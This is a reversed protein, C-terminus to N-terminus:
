FGKKTLYIIRDISSQLFCRAACENFFSMQYEAIENEDKKVIRFHHWCRGRNIAEALRDVMPHMDELTLRMNAPLKM